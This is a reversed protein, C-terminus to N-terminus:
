DLPEPLGKLLKRVEPVPTEDWVLNAWEIWKLPLEPYALLKFELWQQVSHYYHGRLFIEEMELGASAVAVARLVREKQGMHLNWGGWSLMRLATEPRGYKAAMELPSAGTDSLLYLDGGHQMLLEVGQPHGYAGCAHLPTLGDWTKQNVSLWKNKLLDNLKFAVEPIDTLHQVSHLLNGGGHKPSGFFHTDGWIKQGKDLNNDPAWDRLCKKSSCKAAATWKTDEVLVGSDSILWLREKFPLLSWAKTDDNKLAEWYPESEKLLPSVAGVGNRLTLYTKLTNINYFDNKM